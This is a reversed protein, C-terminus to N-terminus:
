QQLAKTILLIQDAYEQAKAANDVPAYNEYMTVKKILPLMSLSCIITETTDETNEDPVRYILKINTIDLKEKNGVSGRLFLRVNNEGDIKGTEIQTNASRQSNAAFLAKEAALYSKKALMAIREAEKYGKLQEPNMRPLIVYRQLLFM